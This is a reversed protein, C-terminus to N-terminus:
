FNYVRKQCLRQLEHNSINRQVTNLIDIKNLFHSIRGKINKLDYYKPVLFYLEKKARTIAVYMCRLEEPDEDSGEETKPTVGEICDMIFVTEYELGKASHITTINLKDENDNEEATADLVIDNLFRVTSRYKEAMIRLTKADEMAEELTRYQESKKSDTTSQNQINRAVVDQYYHNILFEFQEDLSLSSLKNSTQKVEMLYPAFVRKKYQCIADDIDKEAVIKSIKSAFTKGIGPYLQLVRFMAIEDKMNVSIRLFALMDKIIAKEM